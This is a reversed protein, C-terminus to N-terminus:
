LKHGKGMEEVLVMGPRGGRSGDETVVKEVTRKRWAWKERFGVPTNGEVCDVIKDGIVPLFKFGHGSGGTALFLNDYTPHYTFVFDGSPTDAYWCIKTQTFPRDGLWPIISRLAQRCAQEGEPPIHLNPIDLATYPLSISITEQGSTPNPEPNAMSTPNSYGYGHRAVKVMNNAPTIIFMGTSMNLLVPMKRLREQESDSIPFYSLVQGTAQCRGNLNILSPTWAGTALIVLDATQNQGDQLNVGRVSPSSPDASFILSTVTATLFTVRKTADVKKRLWIMSAEADAWGSRTNLYGWNGTGGGCNVARAIAEPSTFEHVSGENPTGKNLSLINEYSAHVYPVGSSDNNAVLALGTESYRGLGGLEDPGQKRWEEQAAAALAAYAPDAYDSRIIRSTDISSGDPAPFPSRDIVTISTSSFSPRTALSRATSLGFVGSGVILISSPPTFSSSPSPSSSSPPSSPM